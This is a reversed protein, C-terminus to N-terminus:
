PMPTPVEWFALSFEWSSLSLHACDRKKSSQSRYSTRGRQGEWPPGMCVWGCYALGQSYRVCGVLGTSTSDQGCGKELVEAIWVKLLHECRVVEREECRLLGQGGGCTHGFRLKGVWLSPIEM